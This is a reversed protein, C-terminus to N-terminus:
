RTGCDVRLPRANAIEFFERCMRGGSTVPRTGVSTSHLYEGLSTHGDGNWDRQEWTYGTRAAGVGLFVVYLAAPVAAALV